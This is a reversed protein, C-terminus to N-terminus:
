EQEHLLWSLLLPYSISEVTQTAMIAEGGERGMGGEREGERGRIADAQAAHCWLGEGPQTVAERPFPVMRYRGPM